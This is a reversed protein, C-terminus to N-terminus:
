YKMKEFCCALYVVIEQGLLSSTGFDSPDLLSRPVDFSKEAVQLAKTVRDKIKLTKAINEFVLHSPCFDEVLACLALGNDFSESFDTVHVEPYRHATHEQVWQLLAILGSYSKATGHTLPPVACQYYFRKIIAGFIFDWCFEVQVASNKPNFVLTDVHTYPVSVGLSSSLFKLATVINQKQTHKTTPNVDIDPPTEGVLMKVLVLIIKGDGICSLQTEQFEGELVL